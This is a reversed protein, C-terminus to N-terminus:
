RIKQGLASINSEMSNIRRDMNDLKSSISELLRISVNTESLTKDALEIVSAMKHTIRNMDSLSKTFGETIKEYLEQNTKETM